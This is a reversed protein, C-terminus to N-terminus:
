KSYLRDPLYTQLFIYQNRKKNVIIFKAINSKETCNFQFLEADIEVLTLWMQNITFDRVNKCFM